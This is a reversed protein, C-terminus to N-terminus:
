VAAPWMLRLCHVLCRAANALPYSTVLLAGRVMLSGSTPTRVFPAALLSSSTRRMSLTGGSLQRSMPGSMQRAYGSIPPVVDFPDEDNEEDDLSLAIDETDTETALDSTPLSHLALAPPRAASGRAFAPHTLPPLPPMSGPFSLSGVGAAGATDAAASGGAAGAGTYNQSLWAGSGDLLGSAGSATTAGSACSVSGDSIPFSLFSGHDVSGRQGPTRPPTPGSHKSM